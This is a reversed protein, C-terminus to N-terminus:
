CVSISVSVSASSTSDVSSRAQSATRRRKFVKLLQRKPKRTEQASTRPPVSDSDPEAMLGLASVSLNKNEYPAQKGKVSMTSLTRLRKPIGPLLSQQRMQPSAAGNTRPINTQHHHGRSVWKTKSIIERAVPLVPVLPQNFAM